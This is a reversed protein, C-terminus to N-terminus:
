LCRALKWFGEALSSTRDANTEEGGVVEPAAPSALVAVLSSSLLIPTTLAAQLSSVQSLLSSINFAPSCRFIALACRARTLSFISCAFFASRHLLTSCGSLAQDDVVPLIHSEWVKALPLRTTITGIVVKCREIYVVKTHHIRRVLMILKVAVVYLVMFPISLFATCTADKRKFVSPASMSLM